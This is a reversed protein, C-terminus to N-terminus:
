QLPTVIGLLFVSDGIDFAGQKWDFCPAKYKTSL